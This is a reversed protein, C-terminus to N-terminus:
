CFRFLTEDYKNKILDQYTRSAAVKGLNQQVVPGDPAVPANPRADPSATAAHYLISENDILWFWEGTATNLPQKNIKRAIATKGDVIYLDITKPKM